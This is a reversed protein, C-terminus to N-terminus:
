AGTIADTPTAVDFIVVTSQEVAFLATGAAAVLADIKGYFADLDLKSFRSYKEQDSSESQMLRVKLVPVLPRAALAMILDNAQQMTAPDVLVADVEAQGYTAVARYYADEIQIFLDPLEEADVGFFIRVDEPTVTTNIWPTVFYTTTIKQPIGNVQYNM